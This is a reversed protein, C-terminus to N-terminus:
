SLVSKVVFYYLNEMHSSMKEDFVHWIHLIESKEVDTMHIFKFKEWNHLFKQNGWSQWVHFASFEECQLKEGGIINTINTFFILDPALM